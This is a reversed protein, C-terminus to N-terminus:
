VSCGLLYSVSAAIATIRPTSFSTGKNYAENGYISFSKIPSDINGGYHVLDPKILGDPGFGIRSFPSRCNAEGDRESNKELSLSGVVLSRISEAGQTIRISGSEPHAQNGASKCIVIKYKTQLEDLAIAFDSFSCEDVEVNSGQSLNWVKIEPHREISEKIYQVMEDEYVIIKDPTTNVVCSQIKLPVSCTHDCGQLEDGYLIIGAVFTGHAPNIDDSDINMLNDTDPIIWDKLHLIPEIGTDLLGVVPYNEGKEPHKISITTDLPEPSATILMHPMEKISIVGDFTALQQLTNSNIRKIRYLKIKDSYNIDVYEINAIKCLEKFKDDRKKNLESNLYDVMRVKVEKGELKEDVCPTYLHVDEIAALAKKISNKVSPDSYQAFQQKISTLDVQNEIKILVENCKDMGIVNRKKKLDFMARVDGRHSKATALKNLNAVVLIPLDNNEIERRVMLASFLELQSNIRVGNRRIAEPTAWVPLENSSMGEPLFADKEGRFQVIQIPLKKAM